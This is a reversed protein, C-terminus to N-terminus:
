FHFVIWASSEIKLYTHKKKQMNKHNYSVNPRFFINTQEKGVSRFNQFILTKKKKKKSEWNWM